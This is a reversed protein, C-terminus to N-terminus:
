RRGNNVFSLEEIQADKDSIAKRMELLQKELKKKKSASKSSGIAVVSGIGLAINLAAGMGPSLFDRVEGDVFERNDVRIEIRESGYETLLMAFSAFIMGSIAITPLVVKKFMM